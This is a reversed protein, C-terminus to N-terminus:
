SEKVQRQIEALKNLADNKQQKTNIIQILLRLDHLQKKFKYSSITAINM